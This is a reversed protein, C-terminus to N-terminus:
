KPSTAVTVMSPRLLRDKLMYGKQYEEVVTNPEYQDTPVQAMAQHFASDFPTGVAEIPTVNFKKLAALLMSHTMRIGEVIAGHSEESAHVLARELNDIVPLIEELLSKNGYNLLEEKERGVRKRYNELDARERLFRDWNEKAEKEKAALQEELSQVGEPLTIESAAEEDFVADPPTTEVIEHEKSNM